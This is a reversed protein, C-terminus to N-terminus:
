FMSDLVQFVLFLQKPELYFWHWDRPVVVHFVDSSQRLNTNPFSAFFNTVLRMARLYRPDCDTAFGLIRVGRELCENFIKLWRGVVHHSEFKNDFGYASLAFPPHNHKDRTIPQIAHLNLLSSLHRSNFAAKLDSFYEIRNYQFHPFGGNGLQPAFGVFYNTSPDYCIRRIIGTSDESAFAYKAEISRFHTQMSDFRFEGERFKERYQNFMTSLTSLSPISGPLNLRIYEYGQHRILVSLILAFQEVQNCYRYGNPSKMLNEFFNEIFTSFFSSSELQENFLSNQCYTILKKLWPFRSLIANSVFLSDNPELTTVSEKLQRLSSMLQDVDYQIGAKVVWTDDSRHFAALRKIILISPDDSKIHIFDLFQNNSYLLSYPSSYGQLRIIEKLEFSFKHELFDYFFTGKLQLVNEDIPINNMTM